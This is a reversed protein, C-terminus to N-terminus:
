FVSWHTTMEISLSSHFAYQDSSTADTNSVWCITDNGADAQIGEEMEMGLSVSNGVELETTDSLPGMSARNCASVTVTTLSPDRRDTPHQKLASYQLM